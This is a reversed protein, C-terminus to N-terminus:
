TKLDAAKIIAAKFKDWPVKFMENRRYDYAMHFVKKDDIWMLTYRDKNDTQELCVDYGPLSIAELNLIIQELGAPYWRRHADDRNYTTVAGQWDGVLKICVENQDGMFVELKLGQPSKVGKRKLTFVTERERTKENVGARAPM